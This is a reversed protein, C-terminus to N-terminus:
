ENNDENLKHYDYGDEGNSCKTLLDKVFESLTKQDVEKINKEKKIYDLFDDDVEFSINEDGNEDKDIGIIRIQPLGNDTSVDM